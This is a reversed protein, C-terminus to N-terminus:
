EVMDEAVWSSEWLCADADMPCRFGIQRISLAAQLSPPDARADPVITSVKPGSGLDVPRTPQTHDVPSVLPLLTSHCEVILALVIIVVGMIISDCM